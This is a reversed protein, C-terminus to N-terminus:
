LGKHRSVDFYRRSLVTKEDDSGDRERMYGADLNSCQECKFHYIPMGYGDRTNGVTGHPLKTVEKENGCRPCYFFFM